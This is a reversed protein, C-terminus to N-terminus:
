NLQPEAPTRSFNDGEDSSPFLRAGMPYNSRSWPIAEENYNIIRM